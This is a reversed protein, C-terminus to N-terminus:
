TDGCKGSKDGCNLVLEGYIEKFKKDNECENCKKHKDKTLFLLKENYYIKILDLYESM